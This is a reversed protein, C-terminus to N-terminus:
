DQVPISPRLSLSLLVPAIEEGHGDIPGSHRECLTKVDGLTHAGHLLGLDHLTGLASYVPSHPTFYLQDHMPFTREDISKKHDDWLPAADLGYLDDFEQRKVAWQHETWAARLHKMVPDTQAKRAAAARQEAAAAAERTLTDSLASDHCLLEAPHAQNEWPYPDTGSARTWTTHRSDADESLSLAGGPARDFGITYTLVSPAYGEARATDRTLHLTVHHRAPHFTAAILATTSRPWDRRIMETRRHILDPLAPRLTEIEPDTLVGRVSANLPWTPWRATHTLVDAHKWSTDLTRWSRSETPRLGRKGTRYLHVHVYVAEHARAPEVAAYEDGGRHAILMAGPHAAQLAAQVQAYEGSQRRQARSQREAADRELFAACAQFAAADSVPLPRHQKLGTKYRTIARQAEDRATGEPLHFQDQALRTLLDLFPAEAEAEARKAHYTAKLLPVLELFHRREQRRSLFDRIIDPTVDPHDFVLVDRDDPKVKVSARTRAAENKWGGYDRDRKWIDGRDYYAILYGDRKGEIPIPVGFAPREARLPTFRHNYRTRGGDHYNGFTGGYERFNGIIRVGPQMTANIRAKWEQFTERPDALAMSVDELAIVRGAEYDDPRTLSVRRVGDANVPLPQLLATRDVLGQLILAVRLYHLEAGKAAREADLYGRSGPEITVTRAEGTAPDTETRQFLATFETRTPILTPRPVFPVHVRYLMEGNRILFHALVNAEAVAATTWANDYRKHNHTVVFCVVGKPEPLFQAARGPDERLWDDFADISTADMGGEDLKMASEEDMRLVGQRIVLPTDEPAPQGHALTVIEEDRGAYLDLTSVVTELKGIYERLPKIAANVSAIAEAALKQILDRQAEAAQKLSTSRTSLSLTLRRADQLRTRTRAHVLAEGTHPAEALDPSAGEAAPGPLTLAQLAQVGHLEGSHRDLTLGQDGLQEGLATVNQSLTSLALTAATIEQAYRADGDPLHRFHQLWDALPMTYTQDHRAFSVTGGDERLFRVRQGAQIHRGTTLCEYHGPTLTVTRTPSPPTHTM